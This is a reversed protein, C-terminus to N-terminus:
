SVRRGTSTSRRMRMATADISYTLVDGTDSAVVPAGINRGSPTNEAVERTQATTGHRPQRTRPGPVCPDINGSTPVSRVSRASSGEATKDNEADEGDRYTAKAKLKSGVDGTVPMYM